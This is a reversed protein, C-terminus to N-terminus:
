ANAANIAFRANNVPVVLQPGALQSIESDVNRTQIKFPAPEPVLYGIESLFAKYEDANIRKGKRQLHWQDIKTQLDEREKLLAINVPGLDLVIQEFGSWFEDVNVGTGPAIQEAVLADLQAVVSLGGRAVRETM